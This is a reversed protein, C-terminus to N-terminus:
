TRSGREAAPRRWATYIRGVPEGCANGFVYADPGLKKRDPGISRFELIPRLSATIPVTRPDNTKTKDAPLEIYAMQGGRVLIQKWQLTLLEGRRGGTELAAVILDHLHTAV